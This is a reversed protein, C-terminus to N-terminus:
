NHVPLKFGGTMFLTLVILIQPIGRRIFEERSVEEGNLEYTGSTVFISMCAILLMIISSFVCLGMLVTLLTPRKTQFDRNAIAKLDDPFEAGCEYCREVPRETFTLSKSCSPCILTLSM